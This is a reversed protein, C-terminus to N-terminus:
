RSMWNPMLSLEASQSRWTPAAANWSESSMIASAALVRPAWATKMVGTLEIEQLLLLMGTPVRPVYEVAVLLAPVLAPTGTM